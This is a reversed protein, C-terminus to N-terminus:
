EWISEIWEDGYGCKLRWNIGDPIEVVKLKSFEGSCWDSGFSEMLEILKPDTRFDRDTRGDKWEYYSGEDGCDIIEAGLMKACEDSFSFCGKYKKNIVIKM